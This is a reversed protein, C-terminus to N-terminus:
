KGGFEKKIIRKISNYDKGSNYLDRFRKSAKTFLNIDTISHGKIIGVKCFTEIQKENYSKLETGSM